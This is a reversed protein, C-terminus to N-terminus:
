IVYDGSISSGNVSWWYETDNFFRIRVEDFYGNTSILPAQDGFYLQIILSMGDDAQESVWWSTENVTAWPLKDVDQFVEVELCTANITKNSVDALTVM